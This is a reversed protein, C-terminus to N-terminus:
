DNMHRLTSAGASKAVPPYGESAGAQWLFQEVPLNAYTPITKPSWPNQGHPEMEQSKKQLTVGM